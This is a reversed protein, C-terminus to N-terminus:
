TLNIFSVQYLNITLELVYLGVLQFLYKTNDDKQNETKFVPIPILSIVESMNMM